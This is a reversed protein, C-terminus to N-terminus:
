ASRVTIRGNMQIKLGCSRSISMWPVASSTRGSAVVLGHPARIVGASCSSHAFPRSIAVSM